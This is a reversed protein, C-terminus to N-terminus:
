RATELWSPRRKGLFAGLGEQGEPSVRLAAIREATDALLIPSLAQGSVDLVLQKAARVACPGGKLLDSILQEVRAALADDGVVESVLGLQAAREASFREASTFYRLAARAGIANVVYPGITAPILGLRVESLAFQASDAAIAIDCCAVLGVGGGIAAGQVQAITPMPLTKLTHLMEALALADSRNQEESFNAMRRMYGIDAGASFSSGEACLVTVRVAADGALRDFHSRLTAIVTDDFANHREPRQLTLRAVGRNDIQLRVTDDM